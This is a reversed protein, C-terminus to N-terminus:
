HCSQMPALAAVRRAVVEAIAHAAVPTIHGHGREYFLKLNPSAMPQLTDKAHIVDINEVINAPLQNWSSQFITRNRQWPMDVVLFASGARTVKQQSYKLLRASLTGLYLRSAAEERAATQEADAAPKRDKVPTAQAFGVLRLTRLGVWARKVSLAVGERVWSYFHSNDAILRYLRWKMLVDQLAVAPLYVENTPVVQDNNLTYLNSLLNENTDTHHWQFIVVDPDFKIMYREYTRLMEATGFGSVSFNLVEARYGAQRLRTELQQALTDQLDLEYGVFFSDGVMAVRCVNVPKEFAVERDSRMGEGNIRYEVDVEPTRHRYVAHPINGRVGWPTGTIYRPMLPQPQLVRVCVEAVFLSYLGLGIVVAARHLQLHSRM